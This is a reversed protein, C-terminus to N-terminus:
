WAPEPATIILDAHAKEGGGVLDYVLARKLFRHADCEAQFGIGGHIQICARGNARAAESALLFASAVQLGVDDAGVRYKLAALCTQYWALRQRVAMDACRHKIAQFSGIPRGFQERLKAYEVALDCANAALGVLAAAILIDARLRLPQADASVFRIQDELTVHGTNLTVSEDLCDASELAAVASSDFLGMGEETWSVVPGTGDWDLMSITQRGGPADDSTAIGLSAMTEGRVLRFAADEDDAIMAVHGALVTALVNPTVLCRACERQILIEEVIGLGSGGVSEPLGIGLWGLASMERWVAAHDLPTAHSRLRELSLEKGLFERVSDVIMTEDENLLLDYM